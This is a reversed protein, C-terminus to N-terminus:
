NSPKGDSVTELYEHVCATCYIGRARFRETLCPPLACWVEHGCDLAIVSGAGDAEITRISREFPSLLKYITM